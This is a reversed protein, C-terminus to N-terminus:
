FISILDSKRKLNVPIKGFVGGLILAVFPGFVGFSTSIAPFLYLSLMLYKCVLVSASIHPPNRYISQQSYMYFKGSIKKSHSTKGFAIVIM